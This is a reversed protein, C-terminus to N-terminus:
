SRGRLRWLNKRKNQPPRWSAWLTPSDPGFHIQSSIRFGHERYFDSNNANTNELYAGCGEADCRSLIPRILASGLGRGQCQPDVGIFQLYYHPDRPHAKELTGLVAVMRGLGKIGAVRIMDPLLALQRFFGIRSKNGPPYWLAAGLCDDTCLVENHPLSLSRLCTRFLQSLASTHQHDQRVLWSLFPDTQFARTLCVALQNVDSLTANRVRIEDM